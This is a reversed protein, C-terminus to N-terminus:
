NLLYSKISNLTLHNFIVKAKRFLIEHISLRISIFQFGNGFFLTGRQQREEIRISNSGSNIM